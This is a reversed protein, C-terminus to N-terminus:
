FLSQFAQDLISEREKKFETTAQCGSFCPNFDILLRHIAERIALFLQLRVDVLVLISIVGDPTHHLIAKKTTAQCGSFCPNFHPLVAVSWLPRIRQLRVDVLVLISISYSRSKNNECNCLQLRVDVLVLISISECDRWSPMRHLTTAQCGSFCPNFNRFDTCFSVSRWQTTAQCGSFCPNFDLNRISLNLEERRTTAQCGSFCPNFYVQGALHSIGQGGLQLRVDVLVLISIRLDQVFRCFLLFLVALTTAQCGSFCPNFYKHGKASFGGASVNYGSM